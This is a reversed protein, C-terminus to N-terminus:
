QLFDDMLSEVALDEILLRRRDKKVCMYRERGREDASLTRV